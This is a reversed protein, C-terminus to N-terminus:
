DTDQVFYILHVYIAKVLVMSRHIGTQTRNVSDKKAILLKIRDKQLITQRHTHMHTHTHM